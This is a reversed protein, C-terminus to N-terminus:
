KQTKKTVSLKTEHGKADKIYVNNKEIAFTVPEGVLADLRPTEVTADQKLELRLDDTEIVYVRTERAAPPSRRGGSNPDGAPVGFVVKPRKAQVDKWTGTQWARDVAGLWAFCVCLAVVFGVACCRERRRAKAAQHRMTM